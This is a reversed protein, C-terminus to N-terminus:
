IAANAFLQSSLPTWLQWWFASCTLVVATWRNCLQLHLAQLSELFRRMSVSCSTSNETILQQPSCKWSYLGWKEQWCLLSVLVLADKHLYFFCLVFLHLRPVTLPHIEDTIFLSPSLSTTSEYDLSKNRAWSSETRETAICRFRRATVVAEVAPGTVLNEEPGDIEEARRQQIVWDTIIITKGGLATHSRPFRGWWVSGSKLLNSHYLLGHASEPAHQRGLTVIIAACSRPSRLGWFRGVCNNINRYLLQLIQTKREIFAM